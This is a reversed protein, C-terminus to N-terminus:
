RSSPQTWAQSLLHSPILLYSVYTVQPEDYFPVPTIIIIVIITIQIGSVVLEGAVYVSKQDACIALSLVDAKHTQISHTITGM